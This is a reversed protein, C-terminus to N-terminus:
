PYFVETYVLSGVFREDVILTVDRVMDGRGCLYFDYLIRPEMALLYDTVRGHFTKEGANARSLCPIYRCDLSRFLNEYYLENGGPVGHLLTFGKVGTRAMSVFPAIGTGTAVFIPQRSSPIFVFYGHPGTFTFGDGRKAAALVSSFRGGQVLRVCINITEDLPTSALSYERDLEEKMFRIRQGSTFDFLPPKTFEVEFALDSFWRRNLLETHYIGPNKESSTSNM